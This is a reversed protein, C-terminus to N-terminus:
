DNIGGEPVERSQLFWRRVNAYNLYITMLIGIVILWYAQSPKHIFYLGIGTLLTGIQAMLSLVWSFAAGKRFTLGGIISTGASFLLIAFGVLDFLPVENAVTVGPTDLMLAFAEQIDAWFVSWSILFTWHNTLLNLGLFLILPAQLLLLVSLIPILRPREHKQAAM